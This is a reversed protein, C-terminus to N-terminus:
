SVTWLLAIVVCVGGMIMSIDDSNKRNPNTLSAIIKKSM